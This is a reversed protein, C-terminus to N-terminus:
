DSSSLKETMMTVRPTIGCVLTYPITNACLAIEEIPLEEGWLTVLDGMKANPQSSLDVTLMDMSVRGILPVRQNNVLVPTGSKAYRPYGDGYGVAIVGLRIAKEAVWTGSYGVADGKALPKVAILKSHLSMVPKLGLQQGTLQAFPSIGYLMIGPRVWDTVAPQWALIGASNAISREGNFNQTTDNFLQIQALTKPDNKDDANALHTLLHILPNVAHCLALRQQAVAFEAQKFGLRNMGSDLKLWVTIKKALQSQEVLDIQEFCHVVTELNYDVLLALEDTCSFGELLVIRQQFGAERLSVAEALRAVAFGDVANAAEAIRLLGHGYGNAKIVAMIKANPAHHRVVALNQQVAALNLVAYTAPKM